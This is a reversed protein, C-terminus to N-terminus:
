KASLQKEAGLRHITNYIEQVIPAGDAAKINCRIRMQMVPKIEPIELFATRKDAALHVSKITVADHSKKKPDNASIDPSGYEGSWIYNWQEASWNSADTASTTDLPATFTIQLGRRTAHLELPMRVPQGTYRVRYFGGDRAADSQWGRSRFLM